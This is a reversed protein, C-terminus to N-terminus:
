PPRRWGGDSRDGATRATIAGRPGGGAHVGMGGRACTNGTFRGLGGPSSASYLYGVRRRPVVGCAPEPPTSVGASFTRAGM